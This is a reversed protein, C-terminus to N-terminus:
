KVEVLEGDPGMKFVHVLVSSKAVGCPSTATVTYLTTKKPAVLTESAKPSVVADLPSWQYTQGPIAKSGILVKNAEPDVPVPEPGPGPTPNQGCAFLFFLFAGILLQKM